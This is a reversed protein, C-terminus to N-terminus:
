KCETPAYKAPLTGATMGSFGHDTATGQGLSSCAWDMVGSGSTGSIPVVTSGNNIFPSLILTLPTGGLTYLFSKDGAINGYFVSIEGNNPDVAAHDVYKSQLYNMGAPGNPDSAFAFVGLQGNSHYAEGIAIKIPETTALGEMIKTRVVYNQYTPLAIAVLIGVIAVVIMLEILTFGKQVGKM